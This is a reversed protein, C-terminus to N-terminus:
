APLTEPDANKKRHRQLRKEYWDMVAQRDRIPRCSALLAKVFRFTSDRESEYSRDYYIHFSWVRFAAEARRWREGTM